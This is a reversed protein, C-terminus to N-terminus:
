GSLQTAALARRVATAARGVAEHARVLRRDGGGGLNAEVLLAAAKAASDALIAGAIADYRSDPKGRETAEAAVEAIDAALAAIREPIEITRERAGLEGRLFADYAEADEAGLPEVEDRLARARVALDDHGSVTAALEALGAALGLASALAPGAALPRAQESSGSQGGM